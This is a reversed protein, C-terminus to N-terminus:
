MRIDLGSALRIAPPLNYGPEVMYMQPPKGINYFKPSFQNNVCSKQVHFNYKQRVWREEEALYRKGWVTIRPEVSRIQGAPHGTKCRRNTGLANCGQCTATRGTPKTVMWVGDKTANSQMTVERVTEAETVLMDLEQRTYGCQILSWDGPIKGMIKLVHLMHKCWQFMNSTSGRCLAKMMKCDCELQDKAVKVIADDNFVFARSVIEDTIRMRPTMRRVPELVLQIFISEPGIFTRLVNRAQGPTAARRYQCRDRRAMHMREDTDTAVTHVWVEGVYELLLHEAVDKTDKWEAEKQIDNMDEDLLWLLGKANDNTRKCALVKATKIQRREGGTNSGEPADQTVRRRKDARHSRSKKDDAIMKYQEAVAEMLDKGYAEGIDLQHYETRKQEVYASTYTRTEGGELIYELKGSQVIFSTITKHMWDVKKLYKGLIKNDKNMLVEAKGSMPDRFFHLVREGEKVYFDFWGKLDKRVIKNPQEDIFEALDEYARQLERPGLAKKYWARALKVFRTEDFGSNIKKAHVGLDKEIHLDCDIELCRGTVPDTTRTKGRLGQEIHKNYVARLGLWQGGASDGCWANPAFMYGKAQEKKGKSILWQRCAYNVGEWFAQLYTSDEGAPLVMVALKVLGCTPLITCAKYVVEKQERPTPQIDKHGGDIYCILKNFLENPGNRDMKVMLEAPCMFGNTPCIFFQRPFDDFLLARFGMNDMTTKLAKVAIDPNNSFSPEQSENQKIFEQLLYDNQMEKSIQAWECYKMEEAICMEMSMQIM